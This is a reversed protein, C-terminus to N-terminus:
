EFYLTVNERIISISNKYCKEQYIVVKQLFHCFERAKKIELHYLILLEVNGILAKFGMKIASKRKEM